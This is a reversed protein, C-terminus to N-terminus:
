RWELVHWAYVVAEGHASKYLTMLHMSDTRNIAVYTKTTDHKASCM